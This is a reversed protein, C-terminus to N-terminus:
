GKWSAGPCVPVGTRKAKGFANARRLELRGPGVTLDDPSLAMARVAQMDSAGPEITETMRLPGTHTEVIHLM